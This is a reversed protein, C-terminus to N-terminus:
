FPTGRNMMWKLNPNERIFWRNQPVGMAISVRMESVGLQAADHQGGGWPIAGAPAAVERRTLLELCRSRAKLCVSILSLFPNM